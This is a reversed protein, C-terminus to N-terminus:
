GRRRSPHLAQAVRRLETMPPEDLVPVTRTPRGTRDYFTMEALAPAYVHISTAPGDGAAVVDHVIGAPLEVAAGAPLARQDLWGGHDTLEALLGDVVVLAGASAGHDHLEVRQGSSWGIVWAEWRDAAVLRVPRREDPDHHAHPRWLDEASALGRAIDVLLSTPLLAHPQVEPSPHIVSL